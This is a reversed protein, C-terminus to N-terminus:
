ISVGLFRKCKESFEAFKGGYQRVFEKLRQKPILRLNAAIFSKSPQIMVIFRIGYEGEFDYNALILLALGLQQDKTLKPFEREFLDLNNGLPSQVRGHLLNLRYAATNGETVAFLRSTEDLRKFDESDHEGSASASCIAGLLIGVVVSVSRKWSIMM